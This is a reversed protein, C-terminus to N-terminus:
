EQVAAACSQGYVSLMSFVIKLEEDYEFVMSAPFLIASVLEGKNTRIGTESVITLVKARLSYILWRGDLVCGCVFCRRCRATAVRVQDEANSGAQLITTGAFLTHRADDVPGTYNGPTGPIESKRVPM